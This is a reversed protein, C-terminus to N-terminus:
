VLQMAGDRGVAAGADFGEVIETFSESWLWVNHGDQMTSERSGRYVVIKVPKRFRLIQSVLTLHGGGLRVALLCELKSLFDGVGDLPLIFGPFFM